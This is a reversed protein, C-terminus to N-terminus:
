RWRESRRGKSGSNAYLALLYIVFVIVMTKFWPYRIWLPIALFMAVLMLNESLTTLAESDSDLDYLGIGVSGCFCGFFALVVVWWGLPENDM